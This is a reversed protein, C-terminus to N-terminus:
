ATGDHEGGELSSRLMTLGRHIRSSITSVPVGAVHAIEALSLEEQFRLLLAERYIPELAGLATAIRAADESRAAALFPSDCDPTPLDRGAEPTPAGSTERCARQQRRLYDIALNRAISFLWPEFRLSGNYQGARELVRVWTEQVLDEARERRSTWYVLYRLLRYHYQSVLRGIFETDRRRLARAISHSETEMAGSFAMVAAVM